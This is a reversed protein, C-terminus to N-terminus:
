FNDPIDTSAGDQAAAPAPGAIDSWDLWWWGAIVPDLDARPIEAVLRRAEDHRGAHWRLLIARQRYGHKREPHLAAYGDFCRQADDLVAQTIARPLEARADMDIADRVVAHVATIFMWPLKSDFRGTRLTDQGVAIMDHYTGGWRPQAFSLWQDFLEEDDMVAGVGRLLWADASTRSRGAGALTIGACAILPEHPYLDWAAHTHDDALALHKVFGKRGADTVTHGWGGGRWSWAVRIHVQALVAHRAWPPLASREFMPTILELLREGYASDRIRESEVARVLWRAGDAMCPDTLVVEFVEALDDVMGLVRTREEENKAFGWSGVIRYQMQLAILPPHRWRGGHSRLEPPPKDAVLANHAAIFARHKEPSGAQGCIWGAWAVLPDTCAKNKRLRAAEKVLERGPRLGRLGARRRACEELLGIVADDWPGHVGRAKYSEVTMARWFALREDQLTAILVADPKLAPTFDIAGLCAVICTLLFLRRM